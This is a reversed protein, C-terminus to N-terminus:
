VMCSMTRCHSLYLKGCRVGADESHRCNHRTLGGHPCDFVTAEDGECDVEDLLIAMGEGAGFAARSFAEVRAGDFGLERCIVTADYLDWSDDCVTGWTGNWFVEVRGENPSNGNALRVKSLLGCPFVENFSM